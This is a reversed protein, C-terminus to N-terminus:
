FSLSRDRNARVGSGTDAMELTLMRCRMQVVVGIYEEEDMISEPISQLTEGIQKVVGQFGAEISTLDTTSEPGNSEQSMEVLYKASDISESLSEVVETPCIVASEGTQIEMLVVSVKGEDTDEDALTKLLQLLEYRVDKSTYTLYRDLLQIIGAERVKVKNYEKGECTMQLDRLADIVLKRFRRLIFIRSGGQNKSGRKASEMRSTKRLNTVPDEMIEKTLPCIFAQYPPEMFQTVQPLMSLSESLTGYKRQRSSVNTSRSSIDPIESMKHNHNVKLRM